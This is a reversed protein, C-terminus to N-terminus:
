VQARGIELDSTALEDGSARSYQFNTVSDVRISAPVKWGEATLWEIAALTKRTFVEGDAPALIFSVNDSKTFDAQQREHAVLQPNDPKFFLRYDGNFWVFKAGYTVAAVALLSFVVFAHRYRVLLAAIRAEM